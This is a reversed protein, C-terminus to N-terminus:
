NEGPAWEGPRTSKKSRVYKAFNMIRCVPPHASSVVEVLDLNANRAYQLAVSTRLVGLEKGDAAIVRVNLASITENRRIASFPDNNGSKGDSPLRNSMDANDLAM